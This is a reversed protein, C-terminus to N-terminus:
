HKHLYKLSVQAFQALNMRRTRAHALSRKVARESIQEVGDAFVEFRADTADDIQLVFARAQGIAAEEGGLLQLSGVSACREFPCRRRAARNLDFARAIIDGLQSLAILHFAVKSTVALHERCVVAVEHQDRAVGGPLRLLQFAVRQGRSLPFQPRGIRCLQGRQM